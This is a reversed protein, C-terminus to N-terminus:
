GPHGAAGKEPANGHHGKVGPSCWYQRLQLGAPSGALWIAAQPVVCIHTELYM